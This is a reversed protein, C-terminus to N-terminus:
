TIKEQQLKYASMQTNYLDEKQALYLSYNGFFSNVVAGEMELIRIVTRDIFHRDHSVIIYGGKCNSLYNELWEIAKIDLHNTPEDLLLLDPSELLLKAISIRM